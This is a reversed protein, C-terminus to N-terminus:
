PRTRRKHSTSMLNACRWRNPSPIETSSVREDWDECEGRSPSMCFKSATNPTSCMICTTLALRRFWCRALLVTGVISIWRASFGLFSAFCISLWTHGGPGGVHDESMQTPGRLASRRATAFRAEFWADLRGCALWAFNVAASGLIRLTREGHATARQPPPGPHICHRIVHHSEQILHCAPIFIPWRPGHM